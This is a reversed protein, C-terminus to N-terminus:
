GRFVRGDEIRVRDGTRFDRPNEQTYTVRAGNELRVRIEIRDVGGADRNKEVENGILAGGAAGVVTAATNGRGGGVQHGLVGGIIGGVIAGGGSTGSGSSRGQVYNIEEVYGYQVRQADSSTYVPDSNSRTACAGLGLTAAIMTVIILQKMTHTGKM